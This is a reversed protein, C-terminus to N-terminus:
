DYVYVYRKEFEKVCEGLDLALKIDNDSQMFSQYLLFFNDVEEFFEKISKDEIKNNELYMNIDNKLLTYRSFVDFFNFKNKFEKVVTRFNEILKGGDIGYYTKGGSTNIATTTLVKKLCQMINEKYENSFKLIIETDSEFEKIKNNLFIYYEKVQYSLM